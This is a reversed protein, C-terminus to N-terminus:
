GGGVGAGEKANLLFRGAGAVQESAEREGAGLCLFILFIRFTWQLIAIDQVCTPFRQALSRGPRIIGIGSQLTPSDVILPCKSGNPPAQDRQILWNCQSSITSLNLSSFMFMFMIKQDSNGASM